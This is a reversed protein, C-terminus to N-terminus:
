KTDTPKPIEDYLLQMDPVANLRLATGSKIWKYVDWILILSAVIAGWWAAADTSSM